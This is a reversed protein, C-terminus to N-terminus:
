LRYEIYKYQCPNGYAIYMKKDEPVMIFSALTESHFQIPKTEDVHRCISIPYDNHDSLIAMMIAPNIEGYRENILQNITEVRTLSDPVVLNVADIKKFRDTLYHNAHVLVDNEPSLIEYDNQTSEIGMIKNEASALHYYGLGRANTRLIEMAYDMTKQRMAKPVYCGLPINFLYKDINAWTGNACIGYGNSSLTYEIIGWLVLSLQKSGDSHIIKILDLPTGPFWDINQGLVTKGNETAKGTAAFSTCLSSLNNYYTGLDLGCKLAFAEEFSIGAGDAQGKIMEILDPDFNKVKPLFKLANSIVDEKTTNNVYSLGGFTLEMAKNISEKCGEGWQLGIQYPTGKCEIVQFKKAVKMM